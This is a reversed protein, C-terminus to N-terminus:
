CRECPSLCFFLCRVKEGALSLHPGYFKQIVSVKRIRDNRHMTKGSCAGFIKPSIYFGWNGMSRIRYILFM